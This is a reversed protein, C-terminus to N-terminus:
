NGLVGRKVLTIVRGHVKTRKLTARRHGSLLAVRYVGRHQRFGKKMNKLGLKLIEGGAWCRWVGVGWL